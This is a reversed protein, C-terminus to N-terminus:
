RQAAGDAKAALAKPAALPDGGQRIAILHVGGSRNAVAILGRDPAIALSTPRISGLNMPGHLRLEGLARRSGPEYFVLGSRKTDTAAVWGGSPSLPLYVADHESAVPMVIWDDEGVSPYPVDMPMLKSRGILRPSTPDDVDIAAVENTGLLAVAASRGTASLTIRSPDDGPKDFTTRGVVRPLGPDDGLAVVDLSPKPRNSEGEASGSLLVLAHRGDPAVVLDDPDFGVRFKSGIREGRWDFTEWWGPEVHRADGAPRQLVYLRDSAAWLSVPRGEVAIDRALELTQAETVRYLVVRNYRPCAVALLRGKDAFVVREARQHGTGVRAVESLTMRGIALESRRSMRLGLGIALGASVLVLALVMVWAAHGKPPEPRKKRLNVKPETGAGIRALNGRHRAVLLVVLGITLLSMAIQDQNWPHEVRGFHVAFFFLGGAISSISVYRTVLLTIIFGILACASAIPDLGLLAGFSTAVGKGGRFKLYIPYNHGLISALAVLVALASVTQGALSGVARPFCITPLLGKLVDLAFVFLFYRFGLVRGVNTAGINGSGVTRIDIGKVWRATLLGFPIAGILYAALVALTGLAVASSTV